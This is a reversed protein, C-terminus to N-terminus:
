PLLKKVTGRGMCLSLYLCSELDNEAGELNSGALNQEPQKNTKIGQSLLFSFLLLEFHQRLLFATYEAGSSNLETGKKKVKFATM